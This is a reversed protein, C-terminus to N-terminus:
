GQPWCLLENLSNCWSHLLVSPKKRNKKKMKRALLKMAFLFLYIILVLYFIKNKLKTIPVSYDAAQSSSFNFCPVYLKAIYVLNLTVEKSKKYWFQPNWDLLLILNSTEKWIELLTWSSCLTEPNVSQNSYLFVVATVSKSLFLIM